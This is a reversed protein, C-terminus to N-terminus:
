AGLGRRNVRVYAKIPEKIGNSNSSGIGEGEKWGMAALMRHGVNSSSIPASNSAVEVIRQQKKQKQPRQDLEPSSKTNSKIFSQGLEPNSKKNSKM